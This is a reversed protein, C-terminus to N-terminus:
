SSSTLINYQPTIPKNPTSLPRVDHNRRRNRLRLWAPPCSEIGRRYIRIPLFGVCVLIAWGLTVNGTLDDLNWFKFTTVGVQFTTITAIAIGIAEPDRPHQHPDGDLAHSM